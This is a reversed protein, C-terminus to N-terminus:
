NEKNHYFSIVKRGTNDKCFSIIGFYRCEDCIDECELMTDKTRKMPCIENLDDDSLIRAAYCIHAHDENDWCASHIRILPNRLRQIGQKIAAKLKWINM